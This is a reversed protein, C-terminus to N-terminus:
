SQRQPTFAVVSLMQSCISTAMHQYFKILSYYAPPGSKFLGIVVQGSVERVLGKDMGM